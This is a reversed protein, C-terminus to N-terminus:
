HKLRRSAREFAHLALKEPSLQNALARSILSTAIAEQVIVLNDATTKPKLRAWVSDYADLLVKTIGPALGRNSITSRAM